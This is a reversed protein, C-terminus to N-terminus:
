AYILDSLITEEAQAQLTNMSYPSNAYAEPDLKERFEHWHYGSCSNHFCHFGFSGDNYAFVAADGNRHTSDFPCEELQYKTGTSIVIKKLVQVSHDALFQELNFAKGNRQKPNESASVMDRRVNAINQVLAMSTEKVPNPYHIIRSFRHPREATDAGKQALTGYLKTIRAPNFVSTDIKVTDTSFWMDLVALLDALVQKENLGAHIRFLLHYGNGSDAVIPESFGMAMLKKMATGAVKRAAEKEAKSSSIGSPRVPDADVLIWQYGVIDNDSTTVNPREVLREHQERSYCGKKIRNLTQYFTRNPYRSLESQIAPSNARFYGSIIPKPEISRIEVIDEPAHLLSLWNVSFGM